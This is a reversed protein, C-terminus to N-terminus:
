PLSELYDAVAKMQGDHLTSAVGHMIAVNRM